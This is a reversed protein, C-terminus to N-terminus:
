GLAESLAAHFGPTLPRRVAAAQLGGAKASQWHKKFYGKPSKEDAESGALVNLLRPTKAGSVWQGLDDGDMRVIAYYTPEKEVPADTEERDIANAIDQVSEFRPPRVGPTKGM